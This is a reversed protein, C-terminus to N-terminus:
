NLNNILSTQNDKNHPDEPKDAEDVNASIALFSHDDDEELVSDNDYATPLQQPMNTAVLIKPNLEVQQHNSPPVLISEIEERESPSFFM